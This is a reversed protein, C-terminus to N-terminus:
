LADRATSSRTQRQRMVRCMQRSGITWAGRQRSTFWRHDKTMMTQGGAGRNETTIPRRRLRGQWRWQESSTSSAKDTRMLVFSEDGRGGHLRYWMVLSLRREGAYFLLACRLHRGRIKMKGPATVTSPFACFSRDTLLAGLFPKSYCWLMLM